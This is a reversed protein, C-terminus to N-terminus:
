PNESLGMTLPSGAFSDRTKSALLAM